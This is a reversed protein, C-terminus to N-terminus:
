IVDWFVDDVMFYYRNDESLVGRDDDDLWLSDKDDWISSSLKFLEMWILLVKEGEGFSADKM